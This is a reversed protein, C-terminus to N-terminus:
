TQIGAVANDLSTATWKAVQSGEDDIQVFTYQYTVGHTQRLETESDFDTKIFVTGDPIQSTDSNIDEDISRCIPCWSAHFFLVKNTGAYQQPNSSYEALTIYTKAEVTGTESNSETSQETTPEAAEEVNATTPQEDQPENNLTYIALGGVGILVVLLLVTM